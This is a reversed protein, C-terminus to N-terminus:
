ETVKVREKRGASIDEYKKAEEELNAIKEEFIRELEGVTGSFSPNEDFFRGIGEEASRIFVKELVTLDLTKVGASKSRLETLFDKALKNKDAKKLVELVHRANVIERGLRNRDKEIEGEIEEMEASPLVESELEKWM